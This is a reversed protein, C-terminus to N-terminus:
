ERLVPGIRGPFEPCIRMAFAGAPRGQIEPRLDDFCMLLRVSTAIQFDAANTEDGGLVGEAIWEDVKDLMGPLAALDDRVAEDDAKNLRASMWIIPRATRAALGVPIGLRAGELFSRAGSRDRKMAWWTLRRPVPQLVEDGWREAEEVAARRAPDTPFLPPEPDIEDLTRSINRTGQIRRGDIRLAPVTSATFGRAKLLPRHLAAILDVRKYDIGKHELMLRGTRSPHSGPMVYLKTAV